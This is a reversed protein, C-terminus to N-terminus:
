LHMEDHRDLWGDYSADDTDRPARIPCGNHTPNDMTGLPAPNERRSVNNIKHIFAAAPMYCFLGKFIDRRNM